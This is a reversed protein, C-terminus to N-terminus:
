PGAMAAATLNLSSQGHAFLTVAAAEDDTLGNFINSKPATTTIQNSSACSGTSSQRRSIPARRALNSATKGPKGQFNGHKVIGNVGDQVNRLGRVQQKAFALPALLLVFLYLSLM